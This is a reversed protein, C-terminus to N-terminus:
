SSCNFCTQISRITYKPADSSTLVDLSKSEVRLLILVERDEVSDAAYDSLKTHLLKVQGTEDSVDM